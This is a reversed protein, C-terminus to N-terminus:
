PCLVWWLFNGITFCIDQNVCVVTWYRLAKLTPQSSVTPVPNEVLVFSKKLATSNRFVTALIGRGRIYENRIWIHQSNKLKREMWPESKWLQHKWLQIQSCKSHRSDVRWQLTEEYDTFGEPEKIKIKKFNKTTDM